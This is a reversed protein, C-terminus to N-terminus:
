EVFGKPDLKERKGRVREQIRLRNEAERIKRTQSWFSFDEQPEAEQIDYDGDQANIKLTYPEDHSSFAIESACVLVMIADNSRRELADQLETLIRALKIRFISTNMANGSYLGVQEERAREAEDLEAELSPVVDNLKAIQTNIGVLEAGRISGERKRKELAAITKPVAEKYAALKKRHAEIKEHFEVLMQGTNRMAKDTLGNKLKAYAKSHPRLRETVQQVTASTQRINKPLGRQATSLPNLNKFAERAEKEAATHIEGHKRLGRQGLEVDSMEHAGDHSVHLSSHHKPDSDSVLCKGHRKDLVASVSDPEPDAWESCESASGPLTLM